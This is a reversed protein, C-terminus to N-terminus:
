DASGPVTFEERFLFRPSALAVTMARAVGGEATEGPKAAVDEALKALREVTAEDAPRRYARTVFAALWRRVYAARKAPDDPVGGDPFFRDYNEPRVWHEKALPGVVTVTRVRLTLSRVAREKPTLPIVELSLERDGAPWERDYEFHYVKGGQRVFEQDL